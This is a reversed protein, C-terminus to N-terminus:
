NSEEQYICKQVDEEVLEIEDTAMDPWVSLITMAPSLSIDPLEPSSFQLDSIPLDSPGADEVEICAGGDNLEAELIRRAEEASDAKVYASAAIQVTINYLNM